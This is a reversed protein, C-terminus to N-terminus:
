IIDSASGDLWQNQVDEQANKKLLAGRAELQGPSLLSAAVAALALSVWEPDPKGFGMRNKEPLRELDM